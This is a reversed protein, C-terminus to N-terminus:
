LLLGRGGREYGRRRAAAVSRLGGLRSRPRVSCWRFRPVSQICDRSHECNRWSGFSAFRNAAGRAATVPDLGEPDVSVGADSRARCIVSRLRRTQAKRWSLLRAAVSIARVSVSAPCDILSVVVCRMRRAAPNEFNGRRDRALWASASRGCVAGSASAM